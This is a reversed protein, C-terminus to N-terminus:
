ARGSLFKSADSPRLWFRGRGSGVLMRLSRGLYQPGKASATRFCAYAEDKKGLGLLCTGLNIRAHSNDPNMTLMRRFIEAANEFEHDQMLVVGLAEFAAFHGPNATLARRFYQAASKRDNVTLYLNGLQAAMDAMAPAAEVGRKLVAIAEDFRQMSALLMGLEFFAPPFAPQREIARTFWVVADDVRSTRQLAVALLTELESDEGRGAAQELPAVAAGARGLAISAYGLVKCADRHGPEVDLVQRALREADAPNNRQLAVRAQQLTENIPMDARM